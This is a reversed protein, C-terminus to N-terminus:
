IHILSLALINAIIFIIGSKDILLTAANVANLIVIGLALGILTILIQFIRKM